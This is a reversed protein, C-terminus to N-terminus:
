FVSSSVGLSMTHLYWRGSLLIWVFIGDFFFIVPSGQHSPPLSDVQWHLHCPNSGQHLNWMGSSPLVQRGYSSFFRRLLLCGLVAFFFFFFLPFFLINCTLIRSSYLCLIEGCFILLGFRVVASFSSM